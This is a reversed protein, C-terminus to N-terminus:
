KWGHVPLTVGKTYLFLLFLDSTNGPESFHINLSHNIVQGMDNELSTTERLRHAYSSNSFDTVSQAGLGTNTMSQVPGCINLSFPVLAYKAIKTM